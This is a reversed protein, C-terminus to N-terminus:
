SSVCWKWWLDTVIHTTLPLILANEGWFRGAKASTIKQPL